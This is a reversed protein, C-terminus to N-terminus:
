KVLVKNFCYNNWLGIISLRQTNVVFIICGPTNAIFDNIKVQLAGM